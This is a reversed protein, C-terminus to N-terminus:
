FLWLDIALAPVRSPPRMPDNKLLWRSQRVACFSCLFIGLNMVLLFGAFVDKANDFALLDGVNNYFWVRMPYHTFYDFPYKEIVWFLLAMATTGMFTANAALENQYPNDYAYRKFKSLLGADIYTQRRAYMFTEWKLGDIRPEIHHKIYLSIRVIHADTYAWYLMLPYHVLPAVLFLLSNELQISPIFVAGFAALDYLWFTNRAQILTLIETRLTSYEAMIGARDANNM